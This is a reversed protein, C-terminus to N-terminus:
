NFIWTKRRTADFLIINPARHLLRTLSVAHSHMSVRNSLWDAQSLSYYTRGLPTLLRALSLIVSTYVNKTFAGSGPTRKHIIIIIEGSLSGRGLTNKASCIRQSKLINSRALRTLRPACSNNDCDAFGNPHQIECSKRRTLRAIIQQQDAVRARACGFDRNNWRFYWIVQQSRERSQNGKWVRDGAAATGLKGIASGRGRAAVSFSAMHSEGFGCFPLNEHHCSACLIGMIVTAIIFIFNSEPAACLRRGAQRITKQYVINKALLLSVSFQYIWWNRAM